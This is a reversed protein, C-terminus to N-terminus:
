PKSTEPGAIMKPRYAEWLTLGNAGVCYPMLVEATEVMGLEILALQSKLWWYLQRWAIREAQERDKEKWKNANFPHAEQRRSDFKAAVAATRVPLKYPISNGNKGYPILFALGTVSGTGSFNLNISTAGAQVLLEQIERISNSVPVTTSEAFLPKKKM